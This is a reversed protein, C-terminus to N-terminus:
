VQFKNRHLTLIESVLLQFHKIFKDNLGQLERGLAQRFAFVGAAMEGIKRHVEVIVSITEQCFIDRNDM